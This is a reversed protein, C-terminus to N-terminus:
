MINGNIFGGLALLENAIALLKPSNEVAANVAQIQKALDDDDSDIVAIEAKVAKLGQQQQQKPRSKPTHLIDLLAPSLLPMPKEAASSDSDM